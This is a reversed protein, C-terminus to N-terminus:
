MDDIYPRHEEYYRGVLYDIARYLRTRFERESIGRSEAKSEMTGDRLFNDYIVQQMEMPMNDIIKDLAIEANYNKQRDTAPIM